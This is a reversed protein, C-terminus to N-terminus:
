CDDGEVVGLWELVPDLTTTRVNLTSSMRLGLKRMPALSPLRLELPPAGDSRGIQTGSFSLRGVLAWDERGNDLSSWRSIM